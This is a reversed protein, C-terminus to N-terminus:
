QPHVQRPSNTIMQSPGYIMQTNGFMHKLGEELVMKNEPNAVVKSFTMTVTSNDQDQKRFLDKFGTPMGTLERIVRLRSGTNAMQRAIKILHLIYKKKSSDSKYKPRKWESPDNPNKEDDRLFEEEARVM